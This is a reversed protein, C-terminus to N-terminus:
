NIVGSQFSFTLKSCPVQQDGWCHKISFLFYDKKASKACCDKGTEQKALCGSIADDDDDDDDFIMVMALKEQNKVIHKPKQRVAVDTSMGNKVLGM